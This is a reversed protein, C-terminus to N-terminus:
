LVCERGLYINTKEEMQIIAPNTSIYNNQKYLIIHLFNFNNQMHMMFAQPEKLNRFSRYDAFLNFRQLQPLAM